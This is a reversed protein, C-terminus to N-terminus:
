RFTRHTFPHSPLGSNLDFICHAPPQFMLRPKENNILGCDLRILPWRCSLVVPSLIVGKGGAVNVIPSELSSARFIGPGLFKNNFCHLLGVVFMQHFQPQTVTDDLSSSLSDVSPEQQQLKRKKQEGSSSSPPHRKAYISYIHQDVVEQLIFYCHKPDELVEVWEEDSGCDKGFVIGIGKGGGNPKLLWNQRNTKANQLAVLHEPEKCGCIFTKIIHRQLLDVDEASLYDSMIEKSSLISLLRKDHGILITRVDNIYKCELMITELVKEPLALLEDQSIELAFQDIPTPIPDHNKEQQDYLKGDDGLILDFPNIFRALDEQVNFTESFERKCTPPQPFSSERALAPPVTPLDTTTSLHFDSSEFHKLSEVHDSDGKGSGFLRQFLNVDWGKDKELSKLIGVPKTSDFVGHFANLVGELEQIPMIPVNKLHPLSAIASNKFHSAYYGNFPYRANIECIVFSDLSHKPFLIDPRWSGLSYEQSEIKKLIEQAQPSLRLYHEHIRHDNFYNKVISVIAREIVEIVKKMMYFSSLTIGIPYPNHIQSPYIELLVGGYLQSLIHITKEHDEQYHESIDEDIAYPLIQSLSAM